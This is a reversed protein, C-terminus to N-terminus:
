FVPISVSADNTLWTCATQQKEKLEFSFQFFYNSDSISLLCSSVMFFRRIAPLACCLVLTGDFVVWGTDM